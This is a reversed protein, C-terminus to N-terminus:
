GNKLSEVYEDYTQDDFVDFQAKEAATMSAPSSIVMTCRCNIDDVAAGMQGPTPGVSGIPSRFMGDEGRVQGNMAVHSTESTAFDRVRGDGATSWVYQLEVGAKQARDAAQSQATNHARHGETRAIRQAKAAAGTISGNKDVGAWERRLEREMWVYPKGTAIGTAVTQAAQRSLQINYKHLQEPWKIKWTPNLVAARVRDPSLMDFGLAVGLGNQVSYATGYYSHEYLQTLYKETTDLSKADIEKVQRAIQIQLKRQRTVYGQEWPELQNWVSAPVVGDDDAYRSYIRRMDRTTQLMARRYIQLLLTNQNEILRDSEKNVRLIGTKVSPRKAM